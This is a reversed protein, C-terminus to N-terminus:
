AAALCFLMILKYSQLKNGKWNNLVFSSFSMQSCFKTFFWVKEGDVKYTLGFLDKETIKAFNCAKDLLM